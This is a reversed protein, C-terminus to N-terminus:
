RVEKCSLERKELEQMCVSISEFVVPLLVFNSGETSPYAIICELDRFSLTAAVEPTIAATVNKTHLRFLHKGWQLDHKLNEEFDDYCM